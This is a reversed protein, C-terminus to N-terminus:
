LAAYNASYLAYQSFYICQSLTLTMKKKQLQIHVIEDFITGAVASIKWSLWWNSSSYTSCVIIHLREMVLWAYNSQKLYKRKGLVIESHFLYQWLINNISVWYYLKFFWKITIIIYCTIIRIAIIISKYIRTIDARSILFHLFLNEKYFALLCTQPLILLKVSM